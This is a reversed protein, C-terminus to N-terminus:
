DLRCHLVLHKSTRLITFSFRAANTFGLTAIAGNTAGTGQAHAAATITAQAVAESAYTTNTLGAQQAEM